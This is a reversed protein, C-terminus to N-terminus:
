FRRFVVDDAIKQVVPAQPKIRTSSKTCNRICEIFTEIAEYRLYLLKQLERVTQIVKLQGVM